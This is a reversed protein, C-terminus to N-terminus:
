LSSYLKEIAQFTNLVDKFLTNNDTFCQRPSQELNEALLYLQNAGVIAAGGKIRHALGSIEKTQHQDIALELHKIDDRTTQMFTKILENILNNDSKAIMSLNTLDLM